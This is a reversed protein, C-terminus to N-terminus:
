WAPGANSPWRRSRQASSAGSGVVALCGASETDCAAIYLAM